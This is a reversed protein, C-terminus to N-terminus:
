VQAALSACWRELWHAVLLLASHILILPAGDEKGQPYLPQNDSTQSGPFIVEPLEM